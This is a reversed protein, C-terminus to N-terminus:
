PCAAAATTSALRPASSFPSSSILSCNFPINYSGHKCPSGRSVLLAGCSSFTYGIEGTLSPPISCCRKRAKARNAM